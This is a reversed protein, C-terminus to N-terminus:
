ILNTQEFFISIFMREVLIHVLYINLNKEKSKVYIIMM